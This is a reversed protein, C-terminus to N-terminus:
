RGGDIDPSSSKTARLKKLIAASIETDIDSTPMFAVFAAEVHEIEGDTLLAEGNTQAVLRRETSTGDGGTPSLPADRLQDAVRNAIEDTECTITFVKCSRTLITGRTDFTRLHERLRAEVIGNEEVGASKLTASRGGGVDHSSAGAMINSTNLHANRRNIEIEDISAKADDSLKWDLGTVTEMGSASAPLGSHPTNVPPPPMNDILEVGALTGDAAIDIIADVHRQQRYPGPAAQMPAFYYAEAEPDYTWQAAMSDNRPQAEISDNSEVVIPSKILPWISSMAAMLETISTMHPRLAAQVAYYDNAAASKENLLQEILDAAAIDVADPGLYPHGKRLAAVVKMPEHAYNKRRIGGGEADPSSPAVATKLLRKCDNRFAERFEGIKNEDIWAHIMDNIIFIQEPTLGAEAAVGTPGPAERRLARIKKAYSRANNAMGPDRIRNWDQAAADLIEAAAEIAENWWATPPVSVALAEIERCLDYVLRHPKDDWESAKPGEGCVALRAEYTLQTPLNALNASQKMAERPDHAM